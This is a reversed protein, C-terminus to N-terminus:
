AAEGALIDRVIPHARVADLAGDAVVRGDDLVLVRDAARLFAPDHSIALVTWPRARDMLVELFRDRTEAELNQFFDDLVLLRPRGAIAQALLLRHILHAPLGAGGSAIESGIGHPLTAAWDMAGVAALAEDVQAAPIWPRGVKVNEEITGEFLDTASLLQGIDGRLAALDLDRVPTGDIAYGGEWDLFLGSLVRLLTTQGAGDAGTIVVRQGAPVHLTLGDLATVGADHYTYRLGETRLTMGTGSGMAPLVRGGARELQLDTVHGAKEVSTLIDYVTSISLILKEIGALVTVIVIESAVFQGLTIQRNIVLVSGLILLGGIVITKFAVVASAQWVLVKFHVKRHHLYATVHRDMREVPLTTRGGFKFATIARGMEQLWHVTAYKDASEALATAIGRPGSTRFIWALVVLLLAAFAAFWPHYFTLLILGFIVQLAATTAETLLKALSKQILVSEFFRNMVEPLHHGELRELRLRPIRFAFEFALRAFVRQQLVEVVSLQLLQLGGSALTGLVVFAILIIVPQLLLGGSVLGTIAQVGLPLTLSLLGTVTAYLYVLGIDRRERLLLQWLRSGPTAHPTEAVSLSPDVGVPVLLVAPEEVAALAALAPEAESLPRSQGDPLHLEAGGRGHGIVVARAGSWLVLPLAGADLLRDLEAPTAERQLFALDAQAAAALFGALPEEGEPTPPAVDPGHGLDALVRRLLERCGRRDLAM